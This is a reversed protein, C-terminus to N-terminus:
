SLVALDWIRKLGIFDLILMVFILMWCIKDCFKKLFLGLMM